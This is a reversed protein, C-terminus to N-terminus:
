RRIPHAALHEAIIANIREAEAIPAMHGAGEVIRLKGNPLARSLLETVARGTQAGTDGATLLAPV